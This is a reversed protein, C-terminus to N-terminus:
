TMKKQKKKALHIGKVLASNKMKLNLDAFDFGPVDNAVCNLTELNKDSIPPSKVAHALKLVKKKVNM